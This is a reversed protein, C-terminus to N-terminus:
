DEFGDRTAEREAERDYAAAFERMVTAFRSYGNQDLADAKRRNTEALAREEKGASFEHMGRSNYIATTFGSRMPEVSRENLASAVVHHIWLGDPDAPAHILMHGIQNLAVELHGSESTIRKVDQLWTTFAQADLSGGDQRGPCTRWENLLGYANRALAKTRESPPDKTTEQNKPRFVLAVVEAFFAPDSALRNEITTPSGSSFRGLWPLFNWEVRFLVDPDVGSTLQLQQIVNVTAHNDLRQVLSPNQLVALLAQVALASDFGPTRGITADISFIAADARGHEILKQIAVSLDRDPGYPNVQVSRWYDAEDQDGLHTAVRSWTEEQFPLLRLFSAKQLVSWEQALMEDVWAWGLARSRGWVFGAVLRKDSEDETDFLKPIVDQEVNRGGVKGLAIGVEDPHAVTRAFARVNSTGGADLISGVAAQKAEDVRRAQEEYNGKEDFLDIGHKNFLRRHKLEPTASALANAAAELNAVAEETMAWEADAFKRHRHVLDLAKDWIRMREHESFATVNASRLLETLRERAEDHLDSWHEILEELRSAGTTASRIALDTYIKVQDWYEARTVTGSWDVPVYARWTPQRSGMAIGYSHPLLALLLKWGVNPQERLVSEVAARRREIPACTQFHWPVLIEVLTGSPRNAYQGGPDIAALDALAVCVRSLLDANWALTGLAWLLGSMYNWGLGAGGEQAFVNHFPSSPLDVLADEVADLFEDPAAEALLPLSSDLSAWRDWPAGRLVRRIALVATSEAKGRSCSSLAQPRSGLLALTEALGERLLTSHALQKGHIAAAFREDKPLDFKPDRESLVSVTLDLLKDLDADSLRNGLASWAEG